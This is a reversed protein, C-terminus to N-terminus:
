GEAYRVTSNGSASIVSVSNIPAPDRIELSAGAILEFGANSAAVSGFNVYVTASGSDNQILLYQRNPNDSLISSAEADGVEAVTLILSVGASRLPPRRKKGARKGPKLNWASIRQRRWRDDLPRHTSQAYPDPTTM